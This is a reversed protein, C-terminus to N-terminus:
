DIKSKLNIDLMEAPGLLLDPLPLQRIQILRSLLRWLAPLNLWRASWNPRLPKLVGLLTARMVPLPPLDAFAKIQKDSILEKGLFGGKVRSPKQDKPLMLLPKPLHPPMLSLSVSWHHEKLSSPKRFGQAKLARSFLTNKVLHVEGGTDRVKARFDDIEKMNMSVYNLVFVAQSKQLWEEYQTTM